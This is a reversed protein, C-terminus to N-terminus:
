DVNLRKFSLGDNLFKKNESEVISDIYENLKIGTIILKDSPVDSLDRKELEENIRNLLVSLSKIRNTKSQGSDYLNKQLTLKRHIEIEKKFRDELDLCYEYDINMSDSISHISEGAERREYYENQIRINEAEIEKKTPKKPKNM